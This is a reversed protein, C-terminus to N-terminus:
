ALSGGPTGRRHCLTYRREEGDRVLHDLERELEVCGPDTGVIADM